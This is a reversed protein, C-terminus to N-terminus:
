DRSAENSRTDLREQASRYPGTPQPHSRVRRQYRASLADCRTPISAWIPSRRFTSTSRRSPQTRECLARRQPHSVAYRMVGDNAKLSTILEPVSGDPRDARSKFGGIDDEDGLVATAGAHPLPFTALM